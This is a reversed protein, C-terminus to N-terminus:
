IGEPANATVTVSFSDAIPLAPVEGMIIEPYSVDGANAVMLTLSDTATNDYNDSARVELTYEGNETGAVETNWEAEWRNDAIYEM